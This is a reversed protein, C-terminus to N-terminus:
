TWLLNLINVNPQIECPPRFTEQQEYQDLQQFEAGQLKSWDDREKLIRRTIKHIHPINSDNKNIDRHQGIDTKTEQLHLAIINLQNHHLQPVGFISHM